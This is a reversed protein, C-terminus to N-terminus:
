SQTIFIESNADCLLQKKTRPNTIMMGTIIHIDITPMYYFQSESAAATVDRRRKIILVEIKLVVDFSRVKLVCVCM